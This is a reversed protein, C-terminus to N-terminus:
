RSAGTGAADAARWRIGRAYRLTEAISLGPPYYHEVFSLGAAELRRRRRERLQEAARQSVLNKLPSVKPELRQLRRFLTKM